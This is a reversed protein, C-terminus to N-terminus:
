RKLGNERYISLIEAEIKLSNYGWLNKGQEIFILNM